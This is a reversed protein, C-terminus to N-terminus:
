PEAIDFGEGENFRGASRHDAIAVTFQFQEIGYLGIVLTGIVLHRGPGQCPQSAFERSHRNGRVQRANEKCGMLLLVQM